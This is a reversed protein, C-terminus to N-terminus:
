AAVWLDAGGPFVDPEVRLRMALGREELWVLRRWAVRGHVGAVRAVETVTVPEYQEVLWGAIVAAEWLTRAHSNCAPIGLAERRRKAAAPSCLGLARAAVHDPVTGLVANM